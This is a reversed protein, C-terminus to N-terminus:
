VPPDIPRRRQRVITRQFSSGPLCIIYLCRQVAIPILYLVLSYGTLASFYSTFLLFSLQLRTHKVTIYGSSVQSFLNRLYIVYFLVKYPNALQYQNMINYIYDTLDDVDGETLLM